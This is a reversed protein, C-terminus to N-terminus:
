RRSPKRKTAARANTFQRRRHDRQQQRWDELRRDRRRDCRRGLFLTLTAAVMLGSLVFGAAGIVGQIRGRHGSLTGFEAVFDDPDDPNVWIRVATGAPLCVEWCGVEAQRQAGAFEYRLHMTNSNRRKHVLESIVAQAPVGDVKLRDAWADNDHFTKFPLWLMAVGVLFGLLYVPYGM